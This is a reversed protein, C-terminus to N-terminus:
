SSAPILLTGTPIRSCMGFDIAVGWAAVDPEATNIAASTM